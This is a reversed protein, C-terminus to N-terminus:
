FKDIVGIAYIFSIIRKPHIDHFLDELNATCINQSKLDFDICILTILRKALYVYQPTPIKM